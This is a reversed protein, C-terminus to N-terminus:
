GMSKREKGKNGHYMDNILRKKKTSGSGRGVGKMRFHGGSTSLLNYVRLDFGFLVLLGDLSHSIFNRAEIGINFGELVLNLSFNVGDV